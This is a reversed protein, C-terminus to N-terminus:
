LYTGKLPEEIGAVGAIEGRGPAGPGDADGRSGHLSLWLRLLHRKRAPDEHDEYSTRGHMTVDNCLFQMDGPRFDMQLAHGPENAIEDVLDLFEMREPSIDPVDAHRQASELFPRVYRIALRQGDWSALPALYWPAEGPQEENRRDKYWDEFWLHSLDPRRRHVENYVSTTSAIFSLGGQKAPHLCLLGVVDSSDTHFPLKLRTQYGRAGSDRRFDVGEDTVHGLLHGRANQSVPRGLHLGIGWYAFAADRESLREMPLGRLLVFGRGTHLERALAALRTGLTPLVFDDRQMALMSIGAANVGAIADLIEQVEGDALREVFADDDVFERGYWASASEVAPPPLPMEASASMAIEHVWPGEPNYRFAPFGEYAFGLVAM